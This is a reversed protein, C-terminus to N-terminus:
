DMDSSLSYIQVQSPMHLTIKPVASELKLLPDYSGHITIKSDLFFFFFGYKWLM